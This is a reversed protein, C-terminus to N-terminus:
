GLWRLLKTRWDPTRLNVVCREPNPMLHLKNGVMSRLVLLPLRLFDLEGAYIAVGQDL